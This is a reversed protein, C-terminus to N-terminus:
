MSALYKWYKQKKKLFSFTKCKLSFLLLTNETNKSKFFFFFNKMKIKFYFIELIKANLFSSFKYMIRYMNKYSFTCFREKLLFICFCVIIWSIRLFFKPHYKKSVKTLWGIDPCFDLFGWFVLYDLFYKFYKKWDVEYCAVGTSAVSTPWNCPLDTALLPWNKSSFPPETFQSTRM